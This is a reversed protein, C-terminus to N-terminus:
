LFRFGSDAIAIEDGRELPVTENNQLLRGRVRTGNTSNLDTIQFGEGTDEIKAHIRSVTDKALVGDVIGSQKGIIFPFYPIPIDEETKDISILYHEAKQPSDGRLLVRTEFIHDEEVSPAAAPPIGDIGLDTKRDRALETELGQGAGARLAERYETESEMSEVDWATRCRGSGLKLGREPKVDEGSKVGFDTEKGVHKRRWNRLFQASFFGATVAGWVAYWIGILWGYQILFWEGELLWLAVPALLVCGGLGIVKWVNKGVGRRVPTPIKEGMPLGTKELRGDYSPNRLSRFERREELGDKEEGFPLQELSVEYDDKQAERKEDTPLWKLLDGLGYSDRQSEQFLRYVLLVCDRESHNVKKLIFQLLDELAKPFDENRGPVLCFQVQFSEPEVYIYQPDLFLQNERLLYRELRDVVGAIATVLRVVEERQIYRGELLRILPQRSTIEYYYDIGAETQQFRFRLLGDIKNAMLMRCEYSEECPPEPTLILYNHRIQREYRIEM